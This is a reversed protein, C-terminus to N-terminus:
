IQFIGMQGGVIVAPVIFAVHEIVWMKYSKLPRLFRCLTDGAEEKRNM